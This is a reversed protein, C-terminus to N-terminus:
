KLIQKRAYQIYEKPDKRQIENKQMIDNQVELLDNGKLILTRNQFEYFPELSMRSGGFNHFEFVPLEFVIIKANVLDNVITKYKESVNYISWKYEEFIGDDCSCYKPYSPYLTITEKDDVTIKLLNIAPSRHQKDTIASSQFYRRYSFSFDYDANVNFIRKGFLLVANIRKTSDSYSFSSIRSFYEQNRGGYEYINSLDIHWDSVSVASPLKYATGENYIRKRDLLTCGLVLFASVLLVIHLIGKKKM